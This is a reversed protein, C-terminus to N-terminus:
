SLLLERRLPEFAWVICLSVIFFIPLQLHPAYMFDYFLGLAMVEWARFRLSLLVMSVFPLWFPGFLVSYLGFVVLAIRFSNEASM